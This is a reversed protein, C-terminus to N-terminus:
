TLTFGAYAVTSMRILSVSPSAIGNALCAVNALCAIPATSNRATSPTRDDRIVVRACAGGGTKALKSSACVLGTRREASPVSRNATFVGFAESETNSTVVGALGLRSAWIGTPSPGTEHFRGGVVLYPHDVLNGIADTHDRRNSTRPCVAANDRVRDGDLKLRHIHDKRTKRPRSLTGLYLPVGPSLADRGGDQPEPLAVSAATTRRHLLAVPLWPICYGGTAPPTFPNTKM